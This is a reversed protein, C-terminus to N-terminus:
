RVGRPQSCPRVGDAHTRGSNVWTNHAGQVDEKYEPTPAYAQQVDKSEQTVLDERLHGECGAENM